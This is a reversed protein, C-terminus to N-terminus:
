YKELNLLCYTTNLTVRIAYNMLRAQSSVWNGYITGHESRQSVTQIYFIYIKINKSIAYLSNPM